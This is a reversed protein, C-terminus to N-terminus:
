KQSLSYIEESLPFIPTSESRENGGLEREEQEEGREGREVSM